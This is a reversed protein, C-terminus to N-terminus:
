HWCALRLLVRMSCLLMATIPYSLNASIIFIFVNSDETFDGDTTLDLGTLWAM